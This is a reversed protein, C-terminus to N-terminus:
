KGSWQRQFYRREIMRAAIARGAFRHGNENWHGVGLRTNKFGHFYTHHQQAHQAMRPALLLCPIERSGCFDALRRDAYFFDDIQHREAFRERVADDPHVQIGNSLVVVMLPVGQAATERQMTELLRLTIQWAARWADTRPPRYIAVDLGAEPAVVETATAQPTRQWAQKARHIVQLLRSHHIATVKWETWGSNAKLYQPHQLFSDDLVLKDDAIRYYPRPRGGSLVRSNDALDNGTLFALVVLDPSFDWAYHRLMELEQATGYGSVGFNLVEVHQKGPPLWLNQNLRTELVKCFTEPLDVQLAEAYSDGLVAIRFTEEPKEASVPADRMAHANTRVFAHGEERYWGSVNPRLRTGCHPDPQYLLLHQIGLLRLGCEFILLGILV